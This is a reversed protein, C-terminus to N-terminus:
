LDEETLNHYGVLPSLDDIQTTSKDKFFSYPVVSQVKERKAREIKACQAMLINWDLDAKYDIKTM